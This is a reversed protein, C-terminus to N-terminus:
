RGLHEFDLALDVSPASHTLAGVSITDVGAEAYARVNALTIGGSAEIWCTAGRPSQRVLRVAGAVQDPTMNDLLVAQVGLQLALTLQDLSDVELQVPVGAARAQAAALAPAVGGAAVLHNDKILAADFLGIRHNRGGGIRVAYKEFLRLGPTTKRTDSVSAGTGAVADAYRRTITAIGSLRQMINLATREGTLIPAAAGELRALGTGAKVQDGERVVPRFVVTADLQRFVERAVELGAVVCAARAVLRASARTGPPVTIASTVDGAGVDEALFRAVEDRVFGADLGFSGRSGLPDPAAM